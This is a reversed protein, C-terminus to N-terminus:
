FESFRSEGVGSEEKRVGLGRALLLLSGLFLEMEVSSDSESSSLLELELAADVKLELYIDDVTETANVWLFDGSRTRRRIFNSLILLNKPFMTQERLVDPTDDPRDELLLGPDRSTLPIQYLEM